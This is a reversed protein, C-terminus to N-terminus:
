KSLEAHKAILSDIEDLEAQLKARAAQLGGLNYTKAFPVAVQMKLGGEETLEYEKEGITKMDGM